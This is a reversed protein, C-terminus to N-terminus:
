LLILEKKLSVIFDTKKTISSLLKEIKTLFTQFCNQMSVEWVFYEPLQLVKLVQVSITEKHYM